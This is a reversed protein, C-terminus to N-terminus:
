MFFWSKLFLSMSFLSVATLPSPPEPVSFLCSNSALLTPLTLIFSTFLNLSFVRVSVPLLITIVLPFPPCTSYPLPPIFALPLLSVKPHHVCLVIYLHHILSNHVQFRYLQILWHLGLLNWLINKLSACHSVLFLLCSKGSFETVQVAFMDNKLHISGVAVPPPM